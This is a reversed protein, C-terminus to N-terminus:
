TLKERVLKIGHAERDWTDETVGIERLGAKQVKTTPTKPLVDVIRIYRPVMFHAMRPALFEILEAPDVTKGPKGALVVM